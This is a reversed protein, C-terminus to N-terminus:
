SEELAAYNVDGCLVILMDNISFCSEQSPLTQKGKYEQKKDIRLQGFIKLAAFLLVALLFGWGFM